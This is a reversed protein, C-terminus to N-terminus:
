KYLIIKVITLIKVILIMVLIKLVIRMMIEVYGDDNGVDKEGSHDSKSSNMIMLIFVMM